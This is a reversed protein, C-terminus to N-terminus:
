SGLRGQGLRALEGLERPQSAEFDTQRVKVYRWNGVGLDTANRCWLEAARDKLTVNVDEQGKTEILWHKGDAGVAVFDPYYLRLNGASDAYEIAFGFDRPLKALARCDDAKDLWRAFAREYENDCAQLNFVSKEAEYV